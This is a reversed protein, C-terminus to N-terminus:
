IVRCIRDRGERKIIEELFMRTNPATEPRADRGLLEQCLRHLTARDDVDFGSPLLHAELGLEKARALTQELVHETSWTIEEFLHRHLTKFGILYYGGDDSPGLVVCDGPRALVRAAEGFSSSGVTPSDSNILCISKFGVQFLDEAALILREGFGDGRQPLLLFDEPLIGAYVEESGLPTYVGVGRAPVEMSAAKIAGALDRLFCKNLGAAEEPTLPPTLRTKVKGPVPAKTMIGFACLGDLDQKRKSPDLRTHTGM